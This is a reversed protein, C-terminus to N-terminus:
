GSKFTKYDSCSVSFPTYTWNLSVPPAEPLDLIENAKKQGEVAVPM